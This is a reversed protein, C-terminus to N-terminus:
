PDDMITVVLTVSDDIETPTFATDEIVTPTVAFDM